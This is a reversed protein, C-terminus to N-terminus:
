QIPRNPEVVEVPQRVAPQQKGAESASQLAQLVEPPIGVSGDPQKSMIIPQLKKTTITQPTVPSTGINVPAVVTNANTDSPKAQAENPKIGGTGFLLSNKITDSIATNQLVPNKELYWLVSEGNADTQMLDAGASIVLNLIDPRTAYYAAFMLLPVEAPAGEIDFGALSVTEKVSAGNELLLKVVDPNGRRIALQLATGGCRVPANLDIRGGIIPQLDASSRANRVLDQLPTYSCSAPNFGRRGGTVIPRAAEAVTATLCLAMVAGLLIKRM